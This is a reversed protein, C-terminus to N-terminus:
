QRIDMWIINEAVWCRLPICIFQEIQNEIREVFVMIEKGLKTPSAPQGHTHALMPIDKWEKALLKLQANLNLLGPLYEYEIAHKWFLPIPVNQILM